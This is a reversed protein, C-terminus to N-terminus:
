QSVSQTYSWVSEVQKMIKGLTMPRLLSYTILSPPVDLLSSKERLNVQVLHIDM